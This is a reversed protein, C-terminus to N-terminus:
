VLYTKEVTVYKIKWEQIAERKLRDNYAHHNHNHRSWEDQTRKFEEPHKKFVHIKLRQRRSYTSNCGEVICKYRQSQDQERSYEM